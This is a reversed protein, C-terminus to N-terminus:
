RGPRSPKTTWVIGQFFEWFPLQHDGVQTPNVVRDLELEPATEAFLLLRSTEPDRQNGLSLAHNLHRLADGTEGMRLYCIGMNRHMAIEMSEPVDAGSALTLESVARSWQRRTMLQEGRYAHALSETSVQGDLVDFELVEIWPAGQFTNRVVGTVMLRDYLELDYLEQLQDSSKSLFLYAFVNGYEEKRWIPQEAAWGYFNTYESPVFRTFFPNAIRGISAFQLPFMVKVQKFAEPSQRVRSLTTSVTAANKLDDGGALTCPAMALSIGITLAIKM